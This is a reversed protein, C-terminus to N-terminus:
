EGGTADEPLAPPAATPQEGGDAPAGASDEASAPPVDTVEGDGKSCSIAILAILMLVVILAIKRM